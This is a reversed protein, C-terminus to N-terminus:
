GRQSPPEELVAAAMRAAATLAETQSSAPQTQVGVTLGGDLRLKGRAVWGRAEQVLDITLQIAM